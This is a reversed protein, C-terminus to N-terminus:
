RSGLHEVGREQNWGCVDKYPVWEISKNKIKEMKYRQREQGNILWTVEGTEIKVIVTVKDREEFGREGKKEM